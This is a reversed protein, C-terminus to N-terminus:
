VTEGTTMGCELVFRRPPLNGECLRHFYGSEDQFVSATHLAMKMRSLDTIISVVFMNSKKKLINENIRLVQQIFSCFCFFKNLNNQRM